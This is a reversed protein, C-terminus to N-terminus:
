YLRRDITFVESNDDCNCGTIVFENPVTAGNSIVLLAVLLTGVIIM